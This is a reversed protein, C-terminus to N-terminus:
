ECADAETQKTSRGPYVDLWGGMVSDCSSRRQMDVLECISLVNCPGGLQACAREDCCLSLCVSLSLSLSLSSSTEGWQPVSSAEGM